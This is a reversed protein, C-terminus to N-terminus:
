KKAPVDPREVNVIKDLIEIATKYDLQRKRSKYPQKCTQPSPLILEVKEM